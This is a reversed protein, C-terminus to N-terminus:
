GKKGMTSDLGYMEKHIEEMLAGINIMRESAEYHKRRRPSGREEEVKFADLMEDLDRTEIKFLRSGFYSRVNKYSAM